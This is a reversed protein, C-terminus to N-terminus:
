EIWQLVRIAPVRILNDEEKTSSMRKPKRVTRTNKNSVLRADDPNYVDLKKNVIVRVSKETQNTRKEKTVIGTGTVTYTNSKFVVNLGLNNLNSLSAIEDANLGSVKSLDAMSRFADDPKLSKKKKNDGRFQVISKATAAASGLDTRENAAFLLITLVEEDATNLNLNGDGYVTLINCLPTTNKNLGRRKTTTRVQSGTAAKNRTAISMKAAAEEDTGFFLEQTIGNVDLLEEISLFPENPCRYILQDDTMDKTLNQGMSQSYFENESLGTSQDDGLVISDPDRWDVISNATQQADIEDYGYYQLMACLLQPTAKNINIKGEEDDITYTYLGKGLKVGGKDLDKQEPPQAWVDSYADYPQGPNEREEILADNALHTMAMAVGSRALNYAVQQERQALALKSNVLVDWALTVAFAGLLVVIWLVMVLIMARKQRRLRVVHQEPFQNEEDVPPVIRCYLATLNQFLLQTRM